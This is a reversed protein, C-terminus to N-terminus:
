RTRCPTSNRGPRATTDPGRFSSTAGDDCAIWEKDLAPGAAVTVPSSWHAGDNSRSVQVRTGGQELTLTPYHSQITEPDEGNRYEWIIRDLPM